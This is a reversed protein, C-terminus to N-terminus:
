PAKSLLTVAGRKEILRDYFDKCTFVYVYVASPCVQGHSCGDWVADSGRGEFIKQGWRDFIMLHEQQTNTTFAYFLENPGNGDPTFASPIYVTAPEPEPLRVLQAYATDACGASDMAYVIYHGESLGTIQPDSSGNSWSLLVDGSGGSCDALATGDNGAPGPNTVVVDLQPADVNVQQVITDNDCRYHIVLSVEYEGSNPFTHVTSTGQSATATTGDGFIWTVSDIFYSSLTSDSPAFFEAALCNIDVEFSDPRTNTFGTVMNPLGYYANGGLLHVALQEFSCAPGTSNPSNICSLYNGLSGYIRGDPGLQLSFLYPSTFIETCSAIIASDNEQLLDWQYIKGPNIVAGYLKSNDPSFEIGYASEMSPVPNPLLLPNSVIGTSNDFDFLEWSNKFTTSMALKKGDPSGKIQGIAKYYGSYIQGAASVVANSDVGDATVLYSRFFNAATDHVIVWIDEQNCHRIGTMKEMVSPYLQVNKIEDVDGLGGRLTMDVQSYRLGQDGGVEDSTFIYYLSPHRPRPVILASQSATISGTLYLSNPMFNHTRDYAFRGDTYFLLNGASDSITSCGEHTEMMGDPMAVATGTSFNVSAFDGFHWSNFHGQSCLTQRCVMFILLFSFKSASGSM